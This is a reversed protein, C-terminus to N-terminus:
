IAATHGDGNFLLVSGYDPHQEFVVADLDVWDM